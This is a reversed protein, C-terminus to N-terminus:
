SSLPSLSSSFTASPQDEAIRYRSRFGEFARQEEEVSTSNESSMIQHIWATHPSIASHWMKKGEGPSCDFNIAGATHVAHITNGAFVAGGSDGNCSRSDTLSVTELVDLYYTSFGVNFKDLHAVSEVRAISSFDNSGGYGILTLVKGIAIKEEPLDFTQASIGRGVKILALDHHESITYTNEVGAVEGDSQELYGLFDKESTVCHRVTIWFKGEIHNATCSRVVKKTDEAEPDFQWLAAIRNDVVPHTSTAELNINSLNFPPYAEPNQQLERYESITNPWKGGSDQEKTIEQAHVPITFPMLGILLAGVFSFFRSCM